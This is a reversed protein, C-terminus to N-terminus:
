RRARATATIPGFAFRIRFPFLFISIRSKTFLSSTTRAAAIVKKFSLSAQLFPMLKFHGVRVQLTFYFDKSFCPMTEHISFFFLCVIQMDQGHANTSMLPSTLRLLDQLRGAGYVGQLRAHNTPEMADSLFHQLIFGLRQHWSQVVGSGRCHCRRRDIRIIGIIIARKDLRLGGLLGSVHSDLFRQSGLVMANPPPLATVKSQLMTGVAGLWPQIQVVIQFPRKHGQSHFVENVNRPLRRSALTETRQLYRHM